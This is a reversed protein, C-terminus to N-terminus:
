WKSKIWEWWKRPGWFDEEKEETKEEKQDERTIVVVEEGPLKLGLQERAVKELYEESGTQFVGKKLEKNRKELIQVEKQINEAQAILKARRQQIRFNTIVLFGVVILLSVGLLVSFFINQFSSTRKKKRFKALM